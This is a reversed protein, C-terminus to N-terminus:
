KSSGARRIKASEKCDKEGKRFRLLYSTMINDYRRAETMLEGCPRLSVASRITM